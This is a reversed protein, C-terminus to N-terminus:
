LGLRTLQEEYTITVDELDGQPDDWLAALEAKVDTALAEYRASWSEGGPAWYGVVKFRDTPLALTKRLHKRVSRLATTEGAVWIYTGTLDADPPVATTVLEALRSPGHGNGGHTWTVKARPHAPLPQVSREDPVEVVARTTVDRPTSELIRALAPLGTLDCVLFQRALDAPPDYLGTPSNLGLPDGPRAAAAWPGAVGDDHLVFDIDIEAAEPRAARITFTRMPATPRGEPTEWGGNDTSVPLSLERRDPGHPFFLRVYEDGVGTSVFAPVDDAAFTIRVMTDALPRVRSVTARHITM